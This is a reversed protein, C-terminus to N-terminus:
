QRSDLCGGCQQRKEGGGLRSGREATETMTGGHEALGDGSRPWAGLGPHGGRQWRKGMRWIQRAERQWLEAVMCPLEAQVMAALNVVTLFDTVRMAM